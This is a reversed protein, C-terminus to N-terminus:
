GREEGREGEGRQRRMFEEFTLDNDRSHLGEELVYVMTNLPFWETSNDDCDARRATRSTKRQYWKGKYYFVRDLEVSRFKLRRTKCDQLSLGFAVLNPM